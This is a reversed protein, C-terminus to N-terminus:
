TQPSDGPGYSPEQSRPRVRMSDVAERLLQCAECNCRSQLAALMASFSLQAQRSRADEGRTDTPGATLAQRVAATLQTPDPMM